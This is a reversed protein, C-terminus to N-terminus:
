CTQNCHKSDDQLSQCSRVLLNCCANCGFRNLKIKLYAPPSHTSIHPTLLAYPWHGGKSWTAVHGKGSVTIGGKPDLITFKPKVSKESVSGISTIAEKISKVKSEDFLVAIIEPKKSSSVVESELIRKAKESSKKSEGDLM